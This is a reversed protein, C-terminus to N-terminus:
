GSPLSNMYVINKTGDPRTEVTVHRWVNFDPGEPEGGSSSSSAISGGTEPREAYHFTYTYAGGDVAEVVVRGDGDYEFAYDAYNPLHPALQADPTTEPDFGAARLRALAEQELVMKVGQFDHLHYTYFTEGVPELNGSVPSLRSRTVRRLDGARGLTSGAAFYQYAAEAVLQSGIQLAVSRIRWRTPGVEIWNYFFTVAVGAVTQVMSALRGNTHTYTSLIGGPYRRQKLKGRLEVPATPGYFISRAGGPMFVTIDAGQYFIRYDEAFEYKHGGGGSDPQFWAVQTGDIVVAFSYGGNGSPRIIVFEGHIPVHWGAGHYSPAHSGLRNVFSRKHTFTRGHATGSVDVSRMRMAGDFYRM